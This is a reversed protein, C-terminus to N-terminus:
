ATFQALGGSQTEYDRNQRPDLQEELDGTPWNRSADRKLMAPKKTPPPSDAQKEATNCTTRDEDLMYM